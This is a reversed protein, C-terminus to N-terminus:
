KAGAVSGTQINVRSEAFFFQRILAEGTEIRRRGQAV